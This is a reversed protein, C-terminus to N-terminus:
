TKERDKRKIGWRQSLSPRIDSKCVAGVGVPIKIENPTMQVHANSLLENFWLMFLTTVSMPPAQSSMLDPSTEAM